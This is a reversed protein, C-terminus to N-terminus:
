PPFSACLRAGPAPITIVEDGLEQVVPKPGQYLPWDPTHASNPDGTAAFQVWYRQMIEQLTRDTANTTMYADHTGFIYPYEAGHYAGIEEGAPDERVRTFFYMWANHGSAAAGQAAGESPCLWSDITEEPDSSEDANIGIIMQRGRFDGAQISDWTSRKILQGDIAPSHYYDPFAASYRALLKDAPLAKLEELSNAEDGLLSAFKHMRAREDALTSVPPLGYSATSQLAARHFLGDAQDTFMLALINEAGASEGFMTVRNKDGGLQHINEQIWELSRIIDWLGFNAAADDPGLDEHSIFGFLGHRYSVSVVVVGEQALKHGHYNPEYSWGSKNSGGHFWVMVPLAADHDPVPTWINLYLCDESIELDPYYEASGGFKEAMSRYWDLIRMTQMCAAAFETTVRQATKTRLPQPVRWRLDGLPPEAFPVGLFAAVRGDEVYKGILTEGDVVVSPSRDCGTLALLAILPVLKCM